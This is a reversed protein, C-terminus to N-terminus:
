RRLVMKKTARFAGAQLEYWYVGSALNQPAWQVRYEGPAQTRKVLTAVIKGSIDFVTLKVEATQPLTYRITTAPNAFTGNTSFPNPYNQKLEYQMPQLSQPTEVATLVAPDIRLLMTSQAPFDAVPQWNSFGGAKDILVTGIIKGSLIDQVAHLGASFNSAGLALTPNGLNQTFFNHLVVIIEDNTRRAFAYLDSRDASVSAYDGRRLAAHANRASILRRYWQWLSTSDAQLDQVNFAPYNGNLASWPRGTTFGANADHTWQMPRRKNEDAGNGIMGVEEGYYMFPVGPLTLYVAAALKMKATNQGFRGFVRDQDHNTLFPAYQLAPYSQLIKQMQSRVESPQGANVANIITEALPFEFCLDIKTGDAYPAIENTGSWVEGVVMAEPQVSKYFQRFTKLFEFTAPANEMVTGAEFLHKIADLRFGDVKMTELWFKAVDFMENKVAENAYNLDPMGSWFLAFYYAGSRSYWVQQGWPGRYGPDNFSWTYWNRYPSTPSSASSVFWPHQSSSHNMVFDIVVKIGRAHASDILAHFDVLTGYDREISRYDTVDYGHYSPSESIPMLWLGTVGLDTHTAPNGDNLYDLKQILGKLDGIGDGNSDYFSRVFIEYFVADNWWYTQQQAHSSNPTFGAAIAALLWFSKYRSSTKINPEQLNPKSKEIFSRVDTQRM